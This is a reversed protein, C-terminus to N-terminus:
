SEGRKAPHCPWAHGAIVEIPHKQMTRFFTRSQLLGLKAMHFSLLKDANSMASLVRMAASRKAMGGKM